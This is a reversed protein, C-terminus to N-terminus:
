CNITHILEVQSGIPMWIMFGWKYHMWQFSSSTIISTHNKFYQFKCSLKQATLALDASLDAAKIIEYFLINEETNKKQREKEAYTQLTAYKSFFNCLPSYAKVWLVVYIFKLDILASFHSNPLELCFIAASYLHTESSTQLSSSFWYVNLTEFSM